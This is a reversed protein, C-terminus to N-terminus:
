KKRTVLYRLCDASNCCVHSDKVRLTKGNKDQFEATGNPSLKQKNNEITKNSCTKSLDNKNVTKSNFDNNMIKVAKLYLKDCKKELGRM